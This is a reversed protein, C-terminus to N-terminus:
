VDAADVAVACSVVNSAERISTGVAIFVITITCICTSVTNVTEGQKIRALAKAQQAKQLKILQAAAEKAARGEKDLM